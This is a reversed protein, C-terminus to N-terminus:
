PKKAVQSPVSKAKPAERPSEPEAHAVRHALEDLLDCLSLNWADCAALRAQELRFELSEVWPEIAESDCGLAAIEKCLKTDGFDHAYLADDIQSIMPRVQELFETPSIKKPSKM